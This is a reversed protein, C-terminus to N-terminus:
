ALSPNTESRRYSPPESGVASGMGLAMHSGMCTVMCTAMCTGMGLASAGIPMAEVHSRSEGQSSESLPHPRPRPCSRCRAADLRSRAM